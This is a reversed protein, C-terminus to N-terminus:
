QGSDTHMCTMAVCIISLMISFGVGVRASADSQAVATYSRLSATISEPQCKDRGQRVAKCTILIKNECRLACGSFKRDFGHGHLLENDVLNALSWSRGDMHVAGVSNKKSAIVM